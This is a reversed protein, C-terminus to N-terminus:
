TWEMETGQCITPTPSPTMVSLEASELALFLLCIDILPQFM